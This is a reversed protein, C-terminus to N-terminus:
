IAVVPLRELNPRLACADLARVGSMDPLLDVHSELDSYAPGQGLAAVRDRPVVRGVHDPEAVFAVFIRNTRPDGAYRLCDVDVGYGNTLFLRGIAM